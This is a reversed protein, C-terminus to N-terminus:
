PAQFIIKAPVFPPEGAAIVVCAGAAGHSDSLTFTATEAGGLSTRTEIGIMIGFNSGWYMNSLGTPILGTWGSGETVTNFLFGQIGISLDGAVPTGDTPGFETAASNSEESMEARIGTHNSIELACVAWNDSGGLTSSITSETGVSTKTFLCFRKSTQYTIDIATSRTFGTVNGITVNTSAVLFFLLNGSTPTTWGDGSGVSATGSSTFPGRKQVITPM